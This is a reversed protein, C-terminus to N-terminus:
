KTKGKKKGSPKFKVGKSKRFTASREALDEETIVRTEPPEEPEPEPGVMVSKETPTLESLPKTYQQLTIMAGELQALNIAHKSISGVTQDSAPHHYLDKILAYQELAMGRLKQIAANLIDETM